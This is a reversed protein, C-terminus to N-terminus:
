RDVVNKEFGKQGRLYPEWQRELGTRGIIDGPRYGEDKRQRVEDGSVENMYGLAHAALLGYPYHRRPVAVIKVGDKEIGTELTAMADRPIDQALLVSKDRAKQAEATLAEWTPLGDGEALLRRLQAYREPDLQSLTAYVDYSPRTSALVRGKRDR